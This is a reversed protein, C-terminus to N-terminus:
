VMLATSGLSFSVIKATLTTFLQFPNGSATVRTGSGCAKPMETKVFHTVIPM